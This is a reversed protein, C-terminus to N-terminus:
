PVVSYFPLDSTRNGITDNSNKLLMIRGTTSHGQSGFLRQCFHTGHTNGTPLPSLDTLSVVKGGDLATTMFDAFSLKRSVEPGSWAQLPVAKGKQRSSNVSMVRFSAEIKSLIPSYFLQFHGPILSSQM